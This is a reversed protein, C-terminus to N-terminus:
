REGVCIVLSSPRPRPTPPDARQREALAQGGLARAVEIGPPQRGGGRVGQGAQGGRSCGRRASLMTRWPSRVRSASAMSAVQRAAGSVASARPAAARDGRAVGAGPAGATEGSPGM